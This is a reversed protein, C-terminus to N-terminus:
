SLYFYSTYGLKPDSGSDPSEHDDSDNNGDGISNRVKLSTYQTNSRSNDRSKDYIRYLAYGCVGCITLIGILASVIGVINRKIECRVGHYM